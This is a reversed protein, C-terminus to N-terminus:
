QVQILDSGRTSMRAHVSQLTESEDNHKEQFVPSPVSIKNM